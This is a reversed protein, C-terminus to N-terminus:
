SAWPSVIECGAALFHRRNRTVLTLGHALATAAILEDAFGAVRGEAKLKASLAGWAEAVRLDIPLVRDGFESLWATLWAKLASKRRGADLGAVGRRLEGFTLASVSLDDAAQEAIWDMYGRDPRERQPESVANTDLLFRL